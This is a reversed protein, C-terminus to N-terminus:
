GELTVLLAQLPCAAIAGGTGAHLIGDLLNAGGDLVVFLTLGAFSQGVGSGHKSLSGTLAGQVPLFGCAFNRTKGM